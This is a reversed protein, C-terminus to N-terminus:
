GSVIVCTNRVIPVFEELGEIGDSIRFWVAPRDYPTTMLSEQTPDFAPDALDLIREVAQRIAPTAREFSIPFGEFKRETTRLCVPYEPLRPVACPSISAGLDLTIEGIRGAQRVQIELTSGGLRGTLGTL